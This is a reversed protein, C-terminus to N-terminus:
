LQNNHCFWIQLCVNGFLLIKQKNVNFCAIKLGLTKYVSFIKDQPLEKLLIFIHNLSVQIASWYNYLAQATPRRDLSSNISFHYLIQTTTSFVKTPDSYQLIPQWTELSPYLILYIKWWFDVYMNYKSSQCIPMTGLQGFKFFFLALYWFVDVIFNPYESFAM